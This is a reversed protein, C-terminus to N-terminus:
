AGPGRRPGAPGFGGEARRGRAAASSAPVHRGESAPVAPAARLEPAALRASVCGRAGEAAALTAAAALDRGRKRGRSPAGGGGRVGRKGGGPEGSTQMSGSTAKVEQIFPAPADRSVGGRRRPQLLPRPAASRRSPPSSPPPSPPSGGEKAEAETESRPAGCGPNLGSPGERAAGPCAGRALVYAEANGM